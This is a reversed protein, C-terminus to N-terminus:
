YWWKASGDLNLDAVPRWTTRVGASPGVVSGLVDYDRGGARQARRQRSLIRDRVMRALRTM